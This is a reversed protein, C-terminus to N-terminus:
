GVPASTAADSRARKSRQREVAAADPVRDVADAVAADYCARWEARARLDRVDYDGCVQEAAAAIRAYLEDVSAQNDLALDAYEVAASRTDADITEAAGAGFAAGLALVAAAVFGLHRTTQM